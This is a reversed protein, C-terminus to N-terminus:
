KLQVLLSKGVCALKCGTVVRTIGDVVWGLSSMSDGHMNCGAKYVKDIPRREVDVLVTFM